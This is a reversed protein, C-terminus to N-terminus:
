HCILWCQIILLLLRILNPNTLGPEGLRVMSYMNDLQLLIYGKLYWAKCDEITEANTTAKEIATIARDLDNNRSFDSANQIEYKQAYAGVFIMMTALLLISRKM